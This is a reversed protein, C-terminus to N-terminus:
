SACSWYRRMRLHFYFNYDYVITHLHNRCRVLFSPGLLITEVVATHRSGRALQLATKGDKNVFDADAGANLLVRVAGDHGNFSAFMIATILDKDRLDVQAGYRLLLQVVQIHGKLAKELLGKKHDDNGTAESGSAWMLASLGDNDVANVNAGAELLVQVTDFRGQSSAWM